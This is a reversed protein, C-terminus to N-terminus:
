EQEHTEGQGQTQYIDRTIIIEVRRNKAKNEVSSNPFDPDFMSRGSVTFRGPELGGQEILYRAVKTARMVSLEWNTPFEENIIPFDDTHGIVQIRYKTRAIIGALSDLFSLTEPRLDARGLDFFMPGQVSVKVSEDDELVVVVNDLRAAKIVEQSSKFISQASVLGFTPERFIPDRTSFHSTAPAPTRVEVQRKEGIKYTFLIAFMVFMVMMLDSWPISWHVAARDKSEDSFIDSLQHLDPISHWGSYLQGARPMATTASVTHDTKAPSSKSNEGNKQRM